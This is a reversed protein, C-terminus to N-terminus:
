LQQSRQFFSSFLKPAPLLNQQASNLNERLLNQFNIKFRFNKNAASPPTSSKKTTSLKHKRHLALECARLHPSPKKQGAVTEPKKRANRGSIQEL